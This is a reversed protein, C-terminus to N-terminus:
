RNENHVKAKELASDKEYTKEKEKSIGKQAFFLTGALISVFSLFQMDVAEHWLPM